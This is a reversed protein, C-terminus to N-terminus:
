RKLLTKRLSREMLIGYKERNKAGYVTHEGLFQSLRAGLRKVMRPAGAERWYEEGFYVALLRGALEEASIAHNEGIPLVTRADFLLDNKSKSLVQRMRKQM